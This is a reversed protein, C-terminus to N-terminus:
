RGNVRKRVTCVLPNIKATDVINAEALKYSAVYLPVDASSLDGLLTDVATQFSSAVDPDIKDPQSVDVANARIPGIYSRGRFSRGSLGTRWSSCLAANMPASAASSSPQDGNWAADIGATGNLKTVVMGTWTFIDPILNKWCTAWPGSINDALDQTAISGTHHVHIVNVMHDNIGAGSLLISIRYLDTIEPLSM